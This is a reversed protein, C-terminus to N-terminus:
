PENIKMKFPIDSGLNHHGLWDKSRKRLGKGLRHQMNQDHKLLLNLFGEFCWTDQINKQM